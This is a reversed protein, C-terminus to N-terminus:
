DTDPLGYDTVSLGCLCQKPQGCICDPIGPGTVAAGTWGSNHSSPLLSHFPVKFTSVPKNSAKKGKKDQQEAAKREKPTAARVHGCTRDHIKGDSVVKIKLSGNNLGELLICPGFVEDMCYDGVKANWTGGAVADNPWSM